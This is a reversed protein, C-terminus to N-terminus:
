TIDGCAPLPIGQEETGGCGATVLGPCLMEQRSRSAGWLCIKQAAELFLLWGKLGKRCMELRVVWSGERTLPMSGGNAQQVRREARAADGTGWCLLASSLVVASSLVTAMGEAPPQKRDREHWPLLGLSPCPAPPQHMAGRAWRWGSFPAWAPM